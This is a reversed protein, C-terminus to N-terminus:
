FSDLTGVKDSRGILGVDLLVDAITWWSGLSFSFNLGWIVIVASDKFTSNSHQSISVFDIRLDVMRFFIRLSNEAFGLFSFLEILWRSFSLSRIVLTTGM